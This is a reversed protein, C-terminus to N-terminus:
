RKWEKVNKIEHLNDDRRHWDDRGHQHWLIIICLIGIIIGIIVNM